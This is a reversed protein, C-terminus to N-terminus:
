GSRAKNKPRSIGSTRSIMDRSPLFVAYGPLLRRATRRRSRGCRIATESGRLCPPRKKGCGAPFPRDPRQRLRPSLCSHANPGTDGREADDTRGRISGCGPAEPRPRREPVPATGASSFRQLRIPVLDRQGRSPIAAGVAARGGFSEGCSRSREHPGDGAFFYQRGGQRKFSFRKCASFVKM